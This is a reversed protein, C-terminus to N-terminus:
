LRFDGIGTVSCGQVRDLTRGPEQTSIPVYVEIDVIKRFDTELQAVAQVRRVRSTPGEVRAVGLRVGRLVSVIPVWKSDYQESPSWEDRGRYGDPRAERHLATGISGIWREATAERTTGAIDADSPNVTVIIARPTRVVPGNESRSIAFDGERAGANVAERLRGAVKKAREYGSLGATAGLRIVVIGGILVDGVDRGEVTSTTAYVEYSGPRGSDGDDAFAVSGDGTLAARRAAYGMVLFVLCFAVYVAATGIRRMAM